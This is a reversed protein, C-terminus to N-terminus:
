QLTGRCVTYSSRVMKNAVPVVHNTHWLQSIGIQAPSFLLRICPLLQVALQGSGFVLACPFIKLGNRHIFELHDVASTLSNLSTPPCPLFTCNFSGIFVSFGFNRTFFAFVSCSFQENKWHSLSELTKTLLSFQNVEKQKMVQLSRSNGKPLSYYLACETHGIYPMLNPQYFLHVNEAFAWHKFPRQKIM